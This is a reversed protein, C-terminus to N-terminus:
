RSDKINSLLRPAGFSISMSHDSDRRAKRRLLTAATARVDLLTQAYAGM